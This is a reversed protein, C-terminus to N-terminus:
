EEEGVANFVKTFHDNLFEVKNDIDKKAIPLRTFFASALCERPSIRRHSSKIKSQDLNYRKCYDKLYDTVDHSQSTWDKFNLYDEELFGKLVNLCFGVCTMREGAYSNSTHIGNKDYSEGSYFYGYKPNANKKINRCLAIFSPVEDVHIINCKRHFYDDNIDTYEIKYGDYHFLFIQSEYKIIFAAHTAVHNTHFNGVAVFDSPVDSETLTRIVPFM